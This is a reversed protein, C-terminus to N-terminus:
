EQTNKNHARNIMFKLNIEFFNQFSWKGFSEPVKVASLDRTEESQSLFSNVTLNMMEIYEIMRNIDELTGPEGHGPVLQKTPLLRLQRLIEMLDEPSGDALFPHMGIFVLDGTFMIQDDPLYMVLDSPTHGGRFELLHVTREKGKLVLSDEFSRNPLTTILNPHSRVMAEYYGVWMLIEQKKLPDTEKELKSKLRALRQPAYEQEQMIMKPENEEILDRTLATSIIRVAPGYIQNGRVHDNHYHSNIVYKLPNGTLEESIKLLDAAAEPSLFTDFILTEEGLDVIAANCISYGGPKHIAAYVGESLIELQFHQSNIHQAIAFNTSFLFGLSLIKLFIHSSSLFIKKM